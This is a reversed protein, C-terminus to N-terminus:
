KQAVVTDSVPGRYIVRLKDRAVLDQDPGMLVYYDYDGAPGQRTLPELWTLKRTERYYNLAPELPWSIGARVSAPHDRDALFSAIAKTDADYEWIYFHSANPQLLYQIAFVAGVAACAGSLVNARFHDGLAAAIGPFIWGALPLFYLGTRDLPYLLGTTHHAAFLLGWSGTVTVSTLLLLWDRPTSIRGQLFTGIAILMGGLSVAAGAVIAFDRWWAKWGLAHNWAVPGPNHALSLAALDQFSEALSHAGYYFNGM